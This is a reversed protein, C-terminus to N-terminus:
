LFYREPIPPNKAQVILPNAPDFAGVPEPCEDWCLRAAIGRSGIMNPVYPATPQAGVRLNGLDIRLIRNAWAHMPEYRAVRAIVPKM